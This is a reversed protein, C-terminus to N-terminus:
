LIMCFTIRFNKWQWLKLTFKHSTDPPTSHRPLGPPTQRAGGRVPSLLVSVGHTRVSALTSVGHPSQGEEEEGEGVRVGSNDNQLVAVAAGQLCLHPLVQGEETVVLDHSVREVADLPVSVVLLEESENGSTLRTGRHGPSSM